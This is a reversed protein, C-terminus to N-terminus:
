VEQEKQRVEHKTELERVTEYQQADHIQALCDIRKREYELAKGNDNQKEAIESLKQYLSAYMSLPDGKMSRDMIQLQETFLQKAKEPEDKKCAVLGKMWLLNLLMATDNPNAMDEAKAVYASITDPHSADREYLNSALNIYNYAIEEPRFKESATVAESDADYIAIAAKDYYIASDLFAIHREKKYRKGYYFATMRYADILDKREHQSLALPLIKDIIKKLTETDNKRFYSSALNNYIQIILSEHNTQESKEYHELAKYYFRHAEQENRKHTYYDALKAYLFGMIDPNAIEAEYRLASDLYIKAGETQFARICSDADLLYSWVISERETKLDASRTSKGCASLLFFLAPVIALISNKFLKHRRNVICLLLKRWLSLRMNKIFFLFNM